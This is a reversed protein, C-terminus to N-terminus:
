RGNSMGAPSDFANAQHKGQVDPEEAQPEFSVRKLLYLWCGSGAGCDFVRPRKGDPPAVCVTLEDGELLYIGPFRQGTGVPGGTRLFDVADPGEVADAEIIIGAFDHGRLRLTYRNGSVTLRTKRAEEAPRVVGDAEM